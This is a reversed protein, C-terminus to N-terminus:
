SERTEAKFADKIERISRTLDGFVQAGDKAIDVMDEKVSTLSSSQSDSQQKVQPAVSAQSDFYCDLEYLKDDIFDLKKEIGELSGEYTSFSTKVDNLRCELTEFMNIIAQRADNM